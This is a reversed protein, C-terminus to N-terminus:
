VLLDVKKGLTEIFEENKAIRDVTAEIRKIRSEISIAQTQVTDLRTVQDSAQSLRSKLADHDRLLDGMGSKLEEVLQHDKQVASREKEASAILSHLDAKEDRANKIIEQIEAIHQELAAALEQPNKFDKKKSLTFMM